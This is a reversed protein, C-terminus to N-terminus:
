GIQQGLFQAIARCVEAEHSAIFFHGGDFLRVTVAGTSLAQWAALEEPKTYPDTNGALVLIPCTCRSRGDWRYTEVLRFDARIVPLFLQMMEPNDLIQPPTGGFRRLLDIFEADPLRSSARERASGSDRGGVAGDQLQLARRGSVILCSPATTGASQLNCAIEFALVAGLSHGFLAYPMNTLRQIEDCIRTVAKALDTFPPQGFSAERGPLVVTGIQVSPGLLRPWNRFGAAGGGAHHLCFLTCRSEAAGAALSVLNNNLRTL